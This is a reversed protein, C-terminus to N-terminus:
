SVRRWKTRAIKEGFKKPDCIEIFVPKRWMFIARNDLRLWQDLTSMLALLFVGLSRFIEAIPMRVDAYNSQSWPWDLRNYKENM